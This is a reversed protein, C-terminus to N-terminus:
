SFGKVTTFALAPPIVGLLTGHGWARGTVRELIHGSAGLTWMTMVGSCEPYLKSSVLKDRDKGEHLPNVYADFAVYLM